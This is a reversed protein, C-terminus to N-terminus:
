LKIDCKGCKRNTYIPFHFSSISPNNLKGFIASDLFQTLQQYKGRDDPQSMQAEDDM